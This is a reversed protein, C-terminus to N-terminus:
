PLPEQAAFAPDAELQEILAFVDVVACDGGHTMGALWPRSGARERWRVQSRPLHQPAPEMRVALAWPRTAVPLLTDAEVVGLEPAVAAALDVVHRRVLTDDTSGRYWGTGAVAADHRWALPTELDSLALALRLRGALCIRYSDPGVAILPAASEPVPAAAVAVTAVPQMLADVYAQVIEDSSHKM